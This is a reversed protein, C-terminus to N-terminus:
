ISARPCFLIDDFTSGHVFRLLEAPTM